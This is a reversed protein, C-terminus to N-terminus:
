DTMFLQSYNDVVFCCSRGKAQYSSKENNWADNRSKTTPPYFEMPINNVPEVDVEQSWKKLREKETEEQGLLKKFKKEKSM